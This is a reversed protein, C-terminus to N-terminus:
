CFGVVTFKEIVVVRWGKGKESTRLAPTWPNNGARRSQPQIRASSLSCQFALNARPVALGGGLVHVLHAPDTVLDQIVQQARASDAHPHSCSPAPLCLTSPSHSGAAHLRLQHLSNSQQLRWRALFPISIPGSAPSPSVAPAWSAAERRGRRGELM